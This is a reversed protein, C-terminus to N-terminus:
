LQPCADEPTGPFALVNILLDRGLTLLTGHTGPRPAQPHQHPVWPPLGSAQAQEAGVTQVVSVLSTVWVPPRQGCGQGHPGAAAAGSSAPARGLVSLHVHPVSDGQGAAGSCPPPTQRPVPTGWPTQPQPVERQSCRTLLWARAGPGRKVVEDRRPDAFTGLTVCRGLRCAPWGPLAAARTRAGGCGM